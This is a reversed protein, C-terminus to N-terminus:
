GAGDLFGWLTARVGCSEGRANCVTGEPCAGGAGLLNVSRAQDGPQVLCTADSVTGTLVKCSSFFQRELLM